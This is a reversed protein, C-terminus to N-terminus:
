TEEYVYRGGRDEVGVEIRALEKEGVRLRATM